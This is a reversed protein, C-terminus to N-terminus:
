GGEKGEDLMNKQGQYVPWNTEWALYPPFVLLAAKEVTAVREPHEELVKYVLDAYVSIGCTGLAPTLEETKNWTILFFGQRHEQHNVARELSKEPLSLQLSFIRTEVARRLEGIYRFSVCLCTSAVAAFLFCTIIRHQSYRRAFTKFVRM